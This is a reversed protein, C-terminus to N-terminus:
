ELILLIQDYKQENDRHTDIEKPEEHDVEIHPVSVLVFLERLPFCSDVFCAQHNSDNVEEEFDNRNDNGEEIVWFHLSFHGSFWSAYIILEKIKPDGNKNYNM